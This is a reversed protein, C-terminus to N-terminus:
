SAEEKVLVQFASLILVRAVALHAHQAYWPEYVCVHVRVRMSVLPTLNCFPM